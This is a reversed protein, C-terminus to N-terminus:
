KFIYKYGFFNFITAIAIGSIKAILNTLDATGFITTILWIISTQIVWASFLSIALFKPATAAKSKKSQWVFHYNLFFSIAICIITSILNAPVAPIGILNALLTFLTLDIVFNTGGVLLFKLEQQYKGLLFGLRTKGLSNM